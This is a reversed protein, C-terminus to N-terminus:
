EAKIYMVWGKVLTWDNDESLGLNGNGSAGSLSLTVRKLNSIYCHGSNPIRYGSDTAQVWYDVIDAVNNGTTLYSPLTSDFFTMVVTGYINGFQFQYPAYYEVDEQAAEWVGTDLRKLKTGGESLDTSEGGNVPKNGINEYGFTKTM